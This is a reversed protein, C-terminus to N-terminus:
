PFLRDFSSSKDFVSFVGCKELLAIIIRRSKYAPYAEEFFIWVHGGNGSRSRELYAPIFYEECAKLFKVCQELWDNKDFDAVVFWSTNNILLPYLGVLQEGKLHRGIEQDSLAKYKKDAFNQFTGGNMKHQRFRYPDYFYAPMYGSKGNKEWRLAFVDERGKFLSKFLEIHHAEVM